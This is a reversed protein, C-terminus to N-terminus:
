SSCIKMSQRTPLQTQTGFNLIITFNRRFLLRSIRDTTIMLYLLSADCVCNKHTSTIYTKTRGKFIRHGPVRGGFAKDGTFPTRERLHNHCPQRSIQSNRMRPRSQPQYKQSPLRSQTKLIM